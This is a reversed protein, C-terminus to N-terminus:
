HQPEIKSIIEEGIAMSATLGPSEIAYLTIFNKIGHTHEDHIIFDGDPQGPGVIKPRIGAYAPVLERNVVDPWFRKVSAYFSDVRTPDVTYDLPDNDNLWQVDPGFLSEGAINMTYHAGLGGGVPVPYILRSFPAPGTVSFYNGKARHLKPITEPPLGNIKHAIAQADLGAANILTQALLTDGGELVVKFGNDTIDVSEIPNCCAVAGGEGELEVIFEQMLGHIDIIGTSPSLLAGQCSLNPEWTMAENASILRLDNVGNAEARAKISELKTLDEDNCAVILKTCNKYAIGRERAYDYLLEKGRVCFKAKNSDKPYYIGAHIVGSNRASTISGPFEEREAVIVERGKLALARAIALGVVGAGIVLVDLKETM